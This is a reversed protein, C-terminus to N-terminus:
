KYRHGVAIMGTRDVEAFHEFLHAEVQKAYSIAQPSVDTTETM